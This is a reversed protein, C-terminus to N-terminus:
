VDTRFDLWRRLAVKRPMEKGVKGKARHQPLVMFVVFVPRGTYLVSYTADEAPGFGPRWVIENGVLDFDEGQTYSQTEDQCEIVELVNPEILKDRRGRQLRDSERYIDETVTIRDRDGILYAAPFTLVADGTLWEGFKAYSKSGAMALITGTFTGQDAFTYGFGDCRDCDEDASRSAADYCPCYSAREWGLVKGRAAIMGEFKEVTFRPHLM